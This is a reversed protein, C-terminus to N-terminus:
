FYKQFPKVREIYEEPSGKGAVTNYYKKWYVARGALTQPIPEPVLKYHLRAIVTAILPSFNLDDWEIKKLDLDFTSKLKELDGPRARQQVDIFAVHDCQYLGRGAGNPTPDSYIGYRTEAAATECLLLVAANNEGPGLVDCVAQAFQKVQELAVLGYGCVHTAM